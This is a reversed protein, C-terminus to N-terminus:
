KDVQRDDIPLPSQRVAEAFGMAPLASVFVAGLASALAHQWDEGSQISEAYGLIAAVAIPVAFRWRQPIHAWIKDRLLPAKRLAYVVTLIIGVAVAHWNQARFESIVDIM